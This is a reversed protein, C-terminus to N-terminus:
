PLGSLTQHHITAQPHTLLFVSLSAESLISVSHSRAEGLLNLGGNEQSHLPNLMGRLDSVPCGLLLCNEASMPLYNALGHTESYVM